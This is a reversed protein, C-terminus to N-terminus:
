RVADRILQCVKLHQAPTARFAFYSSTVVRKLVRNLACLRYWQAFREESAPTTWPRGDIKAFVDRLGKPALVQRDFDHGEEHLWSRKYEAADHFRVTMPLGPAAWGVPCASYCSPDYQVVMPIPPLPVNM